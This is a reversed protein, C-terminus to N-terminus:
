VKKKVFAPVKKNFTLRYCVSSFLMQENYDAITGWPGSQCLDKTGEEESEKGSISCLEPKAARMQRWNCRSLIKVESSCFPLLNSDRYTAACMEERASWEVCWWEERRSKSKWVRRLDARQGMLRRWVGHRHSLDQQKMGTGCSFLM